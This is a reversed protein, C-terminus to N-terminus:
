ADKKAKREKYAKDDKNVKREKKAKREKYAKSDKNV